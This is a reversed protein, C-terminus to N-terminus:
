WESLPTLFLHRYLILADRIVFEIGDALFNQLLPRGARLDIEFLRDFEVLRQRIVLDKRFLQDVGLVLADRQDLRARAHREDVRLDLKQRIQLVLALRIKQGGRDVAIRTLVPILFGFVADALRHLLAAGHQVAERRDIVANRAASPQDVRQVRRDLHAVARRVRTQEGLDCVRAAEGAVFAAADGIVERVCLANRHFLRDRVPLVHVTEGADILFRANGDVALRVTRQGAREHGGADRVRDRDDLRQEGGLLAHLVDGDAVTLAAVEHLVDRRDAHELLERVFVELLVAVLVHDDGGDEMLPHATERLVFRLREADDAPAACRRRKRLCRLDDDLGRVLRRANRRHLRVRFTQAARLLDDRHERILDAGGRVELLFLPHDAGFRAADDVLAEFEAVAVDRVATDLRHQAAHEVDRKRGRAEVRALHKGRAVVVARDADELHAVQRKGVLDLRVM